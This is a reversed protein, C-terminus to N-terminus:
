NINICYVHITMLIIIYIYVYIYVLQKKRTGIQCGKAMFVM